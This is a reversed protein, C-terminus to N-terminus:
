QPVFQVIRLLEQAEDARKQQLHELRAAMEDKRPDRTRTYLATLNVTAMYNDADLALAHRLSKEADDFRGMRTYIQGLEAHADPAKPAFQLAEQIHRFATDLDNQQRAIRALYYHAGGGTEDHSAAETLVEKARDLEGTHFYAVGLALRGRPDQPVLEVYKEFYPLAEGREHMRLAVAGFAYNISPNEPDLEIARKLADYAERGLNLEICVIGFFFHIGANSPDLARAHALYGLAGEFDRQRYAVHALDGLVTVNPGGAAAARELVDRAGTLDGARSKVAALARLTDASVNPRSTVHELLVRAAQSDPAKEFAPMVRLVDSETLAANSALERALTVARATQRSGQLAAVQVAAVHPESLVRAPLQEITSLGEDFSGANTLLFALQYRAEANSPEIRLWRRYLDIAATAAEPRTTAQEQYLRGLNEYAAASRPALELAKQFHQEADKTAGRQAAVVGALNHLDPDSPYAALAGSVAADAASADNGAVAAQVQALVADPARAPQATQQAAPAQAALIATLALIAVVTAFLALAHSGAEGPGEGCGHRV